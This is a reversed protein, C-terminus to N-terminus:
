YYFVIIKEGIELKANLDYGNWYIYQDSISYDIGPQAKLGQNDIFVRISNIDTIPKTLMIYKNNIDSETLIFTESQNPNLDGLMDDVYQKVAHQTPYLIDSTGLTKSVSKNAVNEPTYNLKDQKENLENILDTQNNINGTINGWSLVIEDWTTKRVGGLTIGINSIFEDATITGTTILNKSNLNVDYVADVYPVYKLNLYNILDTQNELDGSIQGWLINYIIGDSVIATIMEPNVNGNINIPNIIGTLNIEDSDASINKALTQTNLDREKIVAKIDETM